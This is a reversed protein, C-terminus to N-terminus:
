GKPGYLHGEQDQIYLGACWIQNDLKKQVKIGFEKTIVIKPGTIYGEKSNSFEDLNYIYGSAGEIQKSNIQKCGEKM